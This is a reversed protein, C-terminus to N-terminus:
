SAAVAWAQDASPPRRLERRTHRVLGRGPHQRAPQGHPLQGPRRDPDARQRRGLQQCHAGARGDRVHQHVLRRHGRREDTLPQQPDVPPRQGAERREGAEPAGGVPPHARVGVVRMVALPQQRREAGRGLPEGGLERSARRHLHLLRGVGGARQRHRDAFGLPRIMLQDLARLAPLAPPPEGGGRQGGGPDPHEVEGPDDGAGDGGAGERQEPRVHQADIRRAQRLALVRVGVGTEALPGDPEVQVAGGVQGGQALQDGGGVHQDGAVAGTREVVVPQRGGLQRRSQDHRLEAGPTPLPRPRPAAPEVAQHLGAAPDRHELGALVPVGARQRGLRQVM